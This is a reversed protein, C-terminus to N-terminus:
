SAPRLTSRLSRLAESIEIEAADEDLDLLYAVEDIGLGDLFRHAIARRRLASLGLMARELEVLTERQELREDPSSTDPPSTLGDFQHGTSPADVDTEDDFDLQTLEAMELWARREEDDHMLDYAVLKGEEQREERRSEAALAERDLAQDLLQLAHKLMWQFPATGGPKSRWEDLTRCLADDALDLIAVNQLRATEARPDHVLARRLARELRKRHDVVKGRFEMWEPTSPMDNRPPSGDRDMQM